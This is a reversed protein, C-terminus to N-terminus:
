LITIKYTLITVKVHSSVPQAIDEINDLLSLNIQRMLMSVVYLFAMVCPLLLTM